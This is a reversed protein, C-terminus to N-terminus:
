FGQLSGNFFSLILRICESYTNEMKTSVNQGNCPSLSDRSKSLCHFLEDFPNLRPFSVAYYTECLHSFNKKKFDFGVIFNTTSDPRLM